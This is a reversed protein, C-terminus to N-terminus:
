APDARNSVSFRNPRRWWDLSAKSCSQVFAALRCSAARFKFQGCGSLFLWHGHSGTGRGASKFAIQAPLPDATGFGSRHQKISCGTRRDGADIGTTEIKGCGERVPAFLTPVAQPAHTEVLARRHQLREALIQHLAFLFEVLEGCRGARRPGVAPDVDFAADAGQQGIGRLAAAFQGVRAHQHIAIDFLQRAVATKRGLMNEGRDFAHRHM